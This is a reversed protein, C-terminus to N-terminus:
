YFDSLDREKRFIDYALQAYHALKIFDRLTEMEGRANIPYRNLYRKMNQVCDASSFGRIQDDGDENKYQPIAYNKIHLIVKNNFDTWEKVRDVPMLGGLSNFKKISKHTNPIRM